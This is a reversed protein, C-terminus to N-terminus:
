VKSLIEAVKNLTELDGKNTVDQLKRTIISLVRFPRGKLEMFYNSSFESSINVVTTKHIGFEKGIQSDSKGTLHFERAIQERKYYPIKNKPNM